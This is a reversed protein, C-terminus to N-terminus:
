KCVFDSLGPWCVLTRKLHLNAYVNIIPYGGLEIREDVNNSQLHFQQIGPSYTPAYYKTFYRMDVGLQVSLVKKALKADLYLNSYLSLDPLPLIGMNSSKQWIVENDFHLIGLNLKQNLRATLVQINSSYQAPKAQYDFYTYNKINEIGAQLNTGWRDINLEGEIRTKFENDMNDNDWWYYNSHYHRMYFAPLTNTVSGRAILNVTDKGLRFNFDIDGKLNFQSLAEGAIGFEGIARYHLLQGEKKSLEGGVFVEHETYNMRTISDRDMLQYKNLKHSIYATLGAKAYKNFGELLAIGVTNKLGVYTTTDKSGTGGWNIIPEPFLSANDKTAFRHRSREIKATHIISTVPVFEEVTQPISDTSNPDVLIDRYFGLNYRHTLYVYFHKNDNWTASLRTPISSTNITRNSMEDPDTIYRDDTIGGNEAMKMNFVNYVIHAQYKDDVYSGFLGSKLFSTSQNNYFGRGYLYDFNFGFALQKNVNVTFYSKFREEGNIKNGARYYSINTYPINSNTFYHEQPKTVFEDFPALFLSQGYGERDFYIRSLRPAGLNGLYNYHGNMGEVLNTNQFQLRTTDADIPIINGLEESVKWMYLKPPLSIIEVENNLSDAPTPRMNPDMHSNMSNLRNQNTSLSSQAVASVASILFVLLYTLRMRKM